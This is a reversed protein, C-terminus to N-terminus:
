IQQKAGFIERVSIQWGPLLPTSLNDGIDLAHISKPSGYILIEQTEASVQWVEQVGAGLYTKIKRLSDTVRESPSVVEVAINPAVPVPIKKWNISTWREGLLIALDPRLRIDEGLAFEVDPLAGGYPQRQLYQYLSSGLALVISQHEPTASTVEIMEGLLLELHRGKEYPLQDFAAGSMTTATAM